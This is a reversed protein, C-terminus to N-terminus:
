DPASGHTAALARLARVTGYWDDSVRAIFAHNHDEWAGYQDALPGFCGGVPAEFQVGGYCGPLRADYRAQEYAHLDAFSMATTPTGIGASPEPPPESEVLFTFYESRDLRSVASPGEAYVRMRGRTQSYIDVRFTHLEQATCYALVVLVRDNRFACARSREIGPWHGTGVFSLEGSLADRLAETPGYLDHQVPPPPRRQPVARATTQPTARAPPAPATACAALLPTLSTLALLMGPWPPARHIPHAM